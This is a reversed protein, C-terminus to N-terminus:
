KLETHSFVICKTNSKEPDPNTSFSIKHELAYKEAINLMEQLGSRTPSILLLDDAYGFVGAFLHGVRCGSRSKRLLDFMDNMYFCYLIPSLVAGQRVGNSIRFERSNQGKWQVEATQMSYINILLRVIVPPVKADLMKKFLKSHQITDFAKTCDMLAAFVDNGNRIYIDITEYVLWSCLSTSSNKQFGFQLEDLKLLHGYNLIIIWDLLKLILSSIAISRYNSSSNLEALKDKVIPVLTAMLLFKSVHGHSFFSKMINALHVHLIEPANKLLDSSINFLPDSKNVKIKKLAEKILAPNIKEIEISAENGIDNNISDLVENVTQGDNERNYLEEYVDAFKNPINEGNAGDITVSEETDKGRHRRIEAFIDNEGELSNEVLKRNKIFSEVRKCKRIQYHFQNRTKKMITHLVTNLPRGASAWISFWFKAADQYPEVYDKWGAMEKCNKGKSKSNTKPITEESAEAIDDLVAKMYADIESLHTLDKCKPDTCLSISEPINIELLKRFAVDNYELRQDESAAKWNPKSKREYEREHKISENSICYTLYIPEHDSLNEIHHIVGGASTVNARSRELTAIHDLTKVHSIGDEAEFCYTFDIEYDEWVSFMNHRDLFQKVFNVHSSNRLFEANLDGLLFYNDCNQTQIASGIQALCDELEDCNDDVGRADNPFYSNILLYKEKTLNIELIQIRWSKCSVIKVSKRLYKPIIISLGGRPRGKNQVEFNKFAPKSIVSHNSFYNSIKKLNNRLLFHEQICFIPIKNGSLDILDQIFKLKLDNSGRSNYSYLCIENTTNAM